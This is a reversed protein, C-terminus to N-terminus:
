NRYVWKKSIIYNGIIVLIQAIIKIILANRGMITIFVVLFVEEIILTFVRGIFFQVIQVIFDSIKSIEKKFVWKTNTIYAFLVSLIWAIINSLLENIGLFYIGMGFSIINIVFTFGGFLLYLIEERYKSYIPYFVKLGPLLMIKDFIDKNNVRM